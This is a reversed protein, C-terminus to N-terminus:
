AAGRALKFGAVRITSSRSATNGEVNRYEFTGTNPIESMGGEASDTFAANGSNCGDAGAVTAYDVGTAVRVVCFNSSNTNTTLFTFQAKASVTFSKAITPVAAGIAVATSATATGANLVVIDDQFKVSDAYQYFKLNAATGRRVVMILQKRDYNTPLIPATSSESAILDTVGTDSRKVLWLYLWTDNDPTGAVSETGDLCGQNTGVVWSGDIRKTLLSSLTLVDIGKDDLVSGTNIDIDNTPDTANNATELGSVLRKLLDIESPVSLLFPATNLTTLLNVWNGATAQKFWAVAILRGPLNARATTSYMTTASDAAGAGGEATTSFIGSEGQYTGTVALEEAGANDILYIYVPLLVNAVHGLTSGASIVLSINASIKRLNFGAESVTAHRQAVFGPNNEALDVADKDKLTITLANAAVAFTPKLNLLTKSDFFKMAAYVDGPKGTTGFLGTIMDWLKGFGANANANTPSPTASIENKNPAAFYAM